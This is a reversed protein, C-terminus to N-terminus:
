DCRSNQARYSLHLYRASRLKAGQVENSLQCHGSRGWLWGCHFGNHGPQRVQTFTASYLTPIPTDTVKWVLMYLIHVCLPEWDSRVQSPAVTQISDFVPCYAGQTRASIESFSSVSLACCVDVLVPFNFWRVCGPCSFPLLMCQLFLNFKLFYLNVKGSNYFYKGLNGQRCM